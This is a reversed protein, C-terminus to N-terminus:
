GLCPPLLQTRPPGLPPMELSSHIRGEGEKVRRHSPTQRKLFQIENGYEYLSTHRHAQQSNSTVQFNNKKALSIMAKKKEKSESLAVQNEKVHKELMKSLRDSM